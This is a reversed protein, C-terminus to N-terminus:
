KHAIVVIYTVRTKPYALYRAGPLVTPLREEVGVCGSLDLSADLTAKSTADKGSMNPYERLGRARSVIADTWHNRAGLIDCSAVRRLV